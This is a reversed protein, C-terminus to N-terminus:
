GLAVTTVLDVGPTRARLKRDPNQLVNLLSSITYKTVDCCSSLPRSPVHLLYPGHFIVHSSIGCLYESSSPSLLM